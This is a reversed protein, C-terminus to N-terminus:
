LPTATSFPLLSTVLPPWFLKVYTHFHSKKFWHGKNFVFLLRHKCLYPPNLIKSKLHM